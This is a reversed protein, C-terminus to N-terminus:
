NLHDATAVGVPLQWLPSVIIIIIRLMASIGIMHSGLTTLVLNVRTLTTVKESLICESQCNLSCSFCLTHPSRRTFSLVYGAVKEAPCREGYEDLGLSCLTRGTISVSVVVDCRSGSM